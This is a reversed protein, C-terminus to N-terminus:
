LTNSNSWYIVATVTLLKIEQWFLINDEHKIIKISNQVKIQTFELADCSIEDFSKLLRSKKSKKKKLPM